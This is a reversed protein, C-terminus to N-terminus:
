YFRLTNVPSRRRRVPPVDLSPGASRLLLFRDLSDRSIRYRPKGGRNLSVDVADLEGEKILSRIHDDSLDLKIAADQVPYWEKGDALRADIADSERKPM